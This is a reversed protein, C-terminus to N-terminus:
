FRDSKLGGPGFADFTQASISAGYLACNRAIRAIRAFKWLESRLACKEAPTLPAGMGWGHFIVIDRM